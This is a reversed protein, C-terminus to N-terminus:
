VFHSAHYTDSNTAPEDMARYSGRRGALTKRRHCESVRVFEREGGRGLSHMCVTYMRTVDRWWGASGGGTGAAAGHTEQGGAVARPPACRSEYQIRSKQWTLYPQRMRWVPPPPRAEWKLTWDRLLKQAKQPNSKAVAKARICTKLGDWEKNCPDLRGQRYGSRIQHGPTLCYMVIDM